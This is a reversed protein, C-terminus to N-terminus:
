TTSVEAGKSTLSNSCIFLRGEATVAFHLQGEEALRSIAEATTCETRAAEVVTMMLVTRSCRHCWLSAREARQSVVLVRETEITVETRRQM